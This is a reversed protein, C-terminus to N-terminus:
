EDSLCRRGVSWGTLSVRALGIYRHTEKDEDDNCSLHSTATM